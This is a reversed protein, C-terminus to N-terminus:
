GSALRGSHGHAVPKGDRRPVDVDATPVHGIDHSPKAASLEGASLRDFLEDRQGPPITAVGGHACIGAAKRAQGYQRADAATGVDPV